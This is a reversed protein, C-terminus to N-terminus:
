KDLKIHMYILIEYWEISSFLVQNIKSHLQNRITEQFLNGRHTEEVRHKQNWIHIRWWRTGPWHHDENGDITILWKSWNFSIFLDKGVICLPKVRPKVIVLIHQFIRPMHFKWSSCVHWISKEWANTTSQWHPIAIRYKLIFGLFFIINTKCVSNCLANKWCTFYADSETRVNEVKINFKILSNSKWSCPAYVKLSFQKTAHM